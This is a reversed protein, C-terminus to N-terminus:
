TRARRVRNKNVIGGLILLFAFLRVVYIWPSGENPQSLLLMACRNCGEIIFAIAFALFLSDRTDRWFRLFFVGAIFSATAIV